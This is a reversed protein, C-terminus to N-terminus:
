SSVFLLDTITYVISAMFNFSGALLCFPLFLEIVYPSLVMKNIFYLVMPWTAWPYEIGNNTEEPSHLM